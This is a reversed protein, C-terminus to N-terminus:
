FPWFGFKNTLRIFLTLWAASNKQKRSIWMQKSKTHTFIDFYPTGWSTCRNTSHHEKGLSLFSTNRISHIQKHWHSNHPKMNTLQPLKASTLLEALIHLIISATCQTSNNHQIDHWIGAFRGCHAFKNVSYITHQKQATFQTSYM